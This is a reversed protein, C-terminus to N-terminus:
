FPPKPSDIQKDTHSCFSKSDDECVLTIDLLDVKNQGLACKPGAASPQLSGVHEDQRMELFADLCHLANNQVPVSHFSHM